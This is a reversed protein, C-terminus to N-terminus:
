PLPRGVRDPPLHPATTRSRRARRREPPTTTRCPPPRNLPRAGAVGSGRTEGGGMEAAAVGVTGGHRYSSLSAILIVSRVQAARPLLTITRTAVSSPMLPCRSTTFVPTMSIRFPQLGYWPDHRIITCLPLWLTPGLWRRARGVITRPGPADAGAGGRGGRRRAAGPGQGHRRAAPAPSSARPARGAHEKVGGGHMRYHGQYSSAGGGSSPRRPALRPRVANCPVHVASSARHVPARASRAGTCRADLAAGCPPGRRVM